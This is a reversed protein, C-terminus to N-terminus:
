YAKWATAIRVDFSRQYRRRLGAARHLQGNAVADELRERLKLEARKAKEFHHRARVTRSAFADARRQLRNCVGGASPHEVSTVILDQLSELCRRLYIMAKSLGCPSIRAGNKRGADAAAIHGRTSRNATTNGHHKIISCACHLRISTQIM